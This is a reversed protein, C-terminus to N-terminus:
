GVQTIDVEYAALDPETNSNWAVTITTSTANTVRLNQIPSPPTNDVINITYAASQPTSSNGAVDKAFYKITQSANLAITGIYVTSATTPTSGDTTFYITSTENATLTVSIGSTYTGPAPSVQVTPATTDTGSSITYSQTQVSSVNGATDKSFYKLVKTSSIILPSTYVSSTQTPTSGDLTYYITAAENVTLTVTQSTAYTGGSVSVTVFPATTDVITGDWYLLKRTDKIWVPLDTGNPYASQLDAITNYVLLNSVSGGTQLQQYVKYIAKIVNTDIKKLNDWDAIDLEPNGILSNFYGNFNVVTTDNIKLKTV